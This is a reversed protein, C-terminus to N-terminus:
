KKAAPPNIIFVAEVVGDIGTFRAVLISPSFTFSRPKAIWPSSFEGAAWVHSGSRRTGCSPRVPATSRIKRWNFLRNRIRRETPRDLIKEAEHAVSAQYSM